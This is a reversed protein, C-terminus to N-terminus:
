LMKKLKNLDYITINHTTYEHDKGIGFIDGDKNIKLSINHNYCFEM